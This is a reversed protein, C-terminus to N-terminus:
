FKFSFGTYVGIFYPKFNGSTNNFTNLQYKFVPELNLNVKKSIRYDLGLGLNASYSTNNVNTAKGLLNTAGDQTSYIENTDLFLASVGGIVSVGLKNSSLNYQLELPIELFGLKQDISANIRNSLVGPVQGFNFEDVSIFSVGQSAENFAINRLLPNIPAPQINNYVVIDNTSYGLNVKHIGTRVRLKKNIAYSASVGYSMNVDGTKSNNNFQDHISSGTGLTNFYVPAINPAVEWRDIEEKDEEEINDENSAAIAETISLGDENNLEVDTINGSITENNATTTEKKPNNSSAIDTNQTKVKNLENLDSNVDRLDSTSDKSKIQNANNENKALITSKNKELIKNNLSLADVKSKSAAKKNSAVTNTNEIKNKVVPNSKESPKNLLESPSKINSKQLEENAINSSKGNDEKLDNSNSVASNNVDSISDTNVIKEEPISESTNFVMNGLSFLLVLGAAISTIKVWIPIAKKYGDNSKLENAINDWVVISPTAEFDKLKEQFLRDINKKDSM